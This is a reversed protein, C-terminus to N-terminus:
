HLTRLYATIDSVDTPGHKRAFSPMEEPIGSRIIAAIRANGIRLNFLDPGDSDEGSGHADDGHCHACSQLFLRRGHLASAPVEPPPPPTPGASTWEGASLGALLSCGGVVIAVIMPANRVATTKM